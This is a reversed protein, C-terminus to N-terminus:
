FCQLRLSQIQSNIQSIENLVKERNSLKSQALKKQLRYRKQKLRNRENIDKESYRRQAVVDPTYRPVVMNLKKAFRMDIKIHSESYVQRFKKRILIAMDSTPVVVLNPLDSSADRLSLRGISQICIDIIGDSTFDYTPLMRKYFAILDPTPNFAGLFALAQKDMYCNMGNSKASIYHFGDVNSKVEAPLSTRYHSALSNNLVAIQKKRKQKKSLGPWTSVIKYATDAYWLLPNWRIKDLIGKEELLRLVSVADSSIGTTSQQMQQRAYAERLVYINKRYGSKALCEILEEAVEVSCLVERTLHQTTLVDNYDRVPVADPMNHHVPSKRIPVIVLSDLRKHLAGHRESAHNLVRDTINNMRINHGHYKLLHFMQSSSFFASMITVEKFGHFVKTPMMLSYFEMSQSLDDLTKKARMLYVEQRPNAVKNLISILNKWSARGKLSNIFTKADNPSPADEIKVFSPSSDDYTTIKFRSLLEGLEDKSLFIKKEQTICNRAEDFFVRFKSAQPFDIVDCFAKHTLFIVSGERLPKYSFSRQSGGNVVLSLHSAVNLDSSNSSDIVLLQTDCFTRAAKKDSCAELIKTKLSNCVQRLLKITPAVYVTYNKLKQGLNLASTIEDTMLSEFYHTKGLGPIGSIFNITLPKAKVGRGFTKLITETNIDELSIDDSSDSIVQSTM